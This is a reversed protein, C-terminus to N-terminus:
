ADGMLQLKRISRWVEDTYGGREAVLLSQDDSWITCPPIFGPKHTIVDVTTPMEFVRGCNLCTVFYAFWGEATIYDGCPCKIQIHADMNKWPLFATVRDGM